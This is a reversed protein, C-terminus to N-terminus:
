CQNRIYLQYFPHLDLTSVKALHLRLGETTSCVSHTDAHHMEEPWCPERALNCSGREVQWLSLHLAVTVLGMTHKMYIDNYM